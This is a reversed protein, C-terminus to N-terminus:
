VGEARLRDWFVTPNDGKEEAIKKLFDTCSM